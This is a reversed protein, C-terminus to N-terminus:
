VRDPSRDVEARSRRGDRDDEVRRARISMELQNFQPDREAFLDVMAAALLHCEDERFAAFAARVQERQWEYRSVVPEYRHRRGVKRRRLLGKRSLRVLTTMITTYALRTELKEVVSEVDQEGSDWLIDLLSSELPGLVWLVTPVLRYYM